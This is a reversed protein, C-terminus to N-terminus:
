PALRLPSLPIAILSRSRRDPPNSLGASAATPFWREAVFSWGVLVLLSLVIALIM